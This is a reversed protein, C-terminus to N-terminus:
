RGTDALGTMLRVPEHEDGGSRLWDPITTATGAIDLEPQATSLLGLIELPHADAPIVRAVVTWGPLLAEDTFQIRPLAWRDKHDRLAWLERASIMQQVRARTVGLRAAAEAVTVSQALLTVYQAVREALQRRYAGADESLGAADYITAEDAPLGVSRLTPVDDIADRVLDGLEDETIEIGHESLVTLASSM